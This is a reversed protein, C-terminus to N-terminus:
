REFVDVGRLEDSCIGIAGFQKTVASAMCSLEAALLASPSTNMSYADGSSWWGMSTVASTSTNLWAM